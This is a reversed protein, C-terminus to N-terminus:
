LRRETAADFLHTKEAEIRLHLTEGPKAHIRDRFIAIAEQGGLDIVVQTESGTPEVVIVRAALGSPGELHFNEPRIGYILDKGIAGDPVRGVPLVVGSTTIFRKPDAPDLRGKIFNM